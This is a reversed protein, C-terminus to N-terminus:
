QDNEKEEFYDAYESFMIRMMNTAQEVQAPSLKSLGRILLRIEPRAPDTQPIEEMASSRLDVPADEDLLEFLHHVSIEMADALKKYIELTPVMPKGTKPNKENELFSIYTNSLGCRRSFERQSINMRKRYDIIIESLKM